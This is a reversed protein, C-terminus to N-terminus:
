TRISKKSTCVGRLEALRRGITPLMARGTGDAVTLERIWRILTAQMQPRQGWVHPLVAASLGHRVYDLSVGDNLLAADAGSIRTLQTELDDGALLESAQTPVAQGDLLEMAARWVVLPSAGDLVAASILLARDLVDRGNGSFFDRLHGRWARFEDVVRAVDISGGTNEGQKVSDEVPAHDIAAALRTADQPLTSGTLVAAIAEDDVLHARAQQGRLRLHALVVDRAKPAGVNAEFESLDAGCRQWARDTMTVVLRVGPREDIYARLDEGFGVPVQDAETDGLDLLFVQERPVPLMGVAPKEWDAVLERIPWRATDALVTGPESGSLLRLAVRRKGVHLPGTIALLRSRRWVATVREWEREGIPAFCHRAAELSRRLSRDRLVEGFYNVIDRGAQTVSGNSGARGILLSASRDDLDGARPDSDSAEVPETRM